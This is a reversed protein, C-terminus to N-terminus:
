EWSLWDGLWGGGPLHSDNTREGRCQASRVRGSLMWNELMWRWICSSQSPVWGFRPQTILSLKCFYLVELTSSAVSRCCVQRRWAEPGPAICKGRVFAMFVLNSNTWVHSCPCSIPFFFFLFFLFFLVVFRHMLKGPADNVLVGNEVPKGEKGSPSSADSPSFFLTFFFIHFHYHYSVTTSNCYYISPTTRTHLYVTSCLLIQM